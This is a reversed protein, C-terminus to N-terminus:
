AILFCYRTQVKGASQEECPLFTSKGQLIRTILSPREKEEELHTSIFCFSSQCKQEQYLFM